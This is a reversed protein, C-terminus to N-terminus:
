EEHLLQAVARLELLGKFAKPGKLVRFVKRDRLDLLVEQL